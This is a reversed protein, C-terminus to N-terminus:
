LYQDRYSRLFRYPFTSIYNRNSSNSCVTIGNFNDVALITSRQDEYKLFCYGKSKGTEKDRPLNLEEIEGYRNIYLHFIFLM